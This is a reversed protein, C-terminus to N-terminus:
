EQGTVQRFRESQRIKNFDCDSMASEKLKDYIQVAKELDDLAGDPNGSLTKYCARNYYALAAKDDRQIINTLLQIAMEWYKEKETPDTAHDAMRRYVKAKGRLAESNTSEAGLAIDFNAAARKLLAEADSAKGQAELASYQMDYKMLHQAADKLALTVEINQRTSQKMTERAVDSAVQKIVKESLPNLFRIGAFGSLVGWAVVKIFHEIKGVSDWEIGFVAGAVTFMALSATAGVLVDGLSGINISHRGIRFFYSKQHILGDVFGGFGGALIIITLVSLASPTGAAQGSGETVTEASWANAIAILVTVGFSFTIRVKM